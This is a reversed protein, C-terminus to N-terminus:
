GRLESLLRQMMDVAQAAYGGGFLNYHNLVHYLNYLTKRTGYGPDLPWAERYAAYFDEGFGGFLETMALDTERDGYYVAPDFLVPEGKLSYDYNGSWLDGHLLSVQPSYGSFLRPLAENLLAGLEGLRKGAGGAAAMQLQPLLRQQSWFSTWLAHRTNSQRTRGITNDRFWGFQKAQVRHLAALQQGLIEGRGRGGLALSELVLWAHEENVGCAVPEPVRIARAAALERLGDAEAEFMPLCAPSNLKVFYEQEGDALIWAQNICGGAVPRQQRPTFARGRSAHIAAAIQQWQQM